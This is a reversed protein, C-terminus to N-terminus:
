SVRAATGNTSAPLSVTGPRGGGNSPAPRRRVGHGFLQPHRARYFACLAHALRIRAAGLEEVTERRVDIRQGLADYRVLVPARAARLWRAAADHEARELHDLLDAAVNAHQWSSIGSGVALVLTLLAMAAALPLGSGGGARLAGVAVGALAFVAAALCWAATLWRRGGTVALHGFRPDLQVASLLAGDVSHRLVGGLDGAVVFALAIGASLLLGELPPVDFAASFAVALSVAEGVAFVIKRRLYGAHSLRRFAVPALARRAERLLHGAEEFDQRRRTVLLTAAAVQTELGERRARLRRSRRLERAMLLRRDKEALLLEALEDHARFQRDGEQPEVKAVAPAEVATLRRFAAREFRGTATGPAAHRRFVRM